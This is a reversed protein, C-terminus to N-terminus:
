ILQLQRARRIAQNRRSVGLKRLIGRVHTRVTNVSVFMAQAVEETSMAAALHRLVERERETLPEIIVPDVGGAGPAMSDGPGGAPSALRVAALGRVPGGIRRVPAPPTGNVATRQSLAAGDVVRRSASSLVVSVGFRATFWAPAVAPAIASVAGSCLYPQGSRRLVSQLRALLAAASPDFRLRDMAASAARAYARAPVLDGDEAALWGLTVAGAPSRQAAAAGMEDALRQAAAAVEQARRRRGALLEALARQALVDIRTQPAGDLDAAAGARRLVTAADDFDGSWLLAAGLGVLLTARYDAVGDAGRGPQERLVAEAAAAAERVAASDARALGLQLEVMAIALDLADSRQAGTAARQKALTLRQSCRPLDGDGLAIAALVVATHADACAAPAPGFLEALAPRDTGTLVAAIAYDDVVLTSALSWDRCSAALLL